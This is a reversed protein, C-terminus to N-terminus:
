LFVTRDLLDGGSGEEKKDESPKDLSVFELHIRSQSLGRIFDFNSHGHSRYGIIKPDSPSLIVALFGFHRGPFYRHM